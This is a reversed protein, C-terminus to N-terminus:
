IKDANSLIWKNKNGPEIEHHSVMDGEGNVSGLRHRRRRTITNGVCGHSPRLLLMGM